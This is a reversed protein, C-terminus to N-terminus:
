VVLVINDGEIFVRNVTPMGLGTLYEDLAAAAFGRVSPDSLKTRVRNQLESKIRAKYDGVFDCVDFLPLDCPGTAQITASLAVDSVRYSLRGGEAIPRLAVALSANDINLDPMLGDYPGGIPANTYLGKVEPGGSEFALTARFSPSGWGVAISSLDFRDVYFRAQGLDPCLLGCDLDYQIEPLSFPYSTGGWRLFSGNDLQFSQGHRPGYNDLHMESGQVAANLAAAALNAQVKLIKVPGHYTFNVATAPASVQRSAPNFEGYRCLGPDLKATVAYSGRPLDTISYAGTASARASGFVEFGRITARANVTIHDRTVGPCNTLSVNGSIVHSGEPPDPDGDDPPLAHASTAMLTIATAAVALGTRALRTWRGHRRSVTTNSNM